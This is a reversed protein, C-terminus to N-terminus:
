SRFWLPLKKIAVKSDLRIDRASYVEGMGGKGVLQLKKYPGFDTGALSVTSDGAFM